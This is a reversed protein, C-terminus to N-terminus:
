AAWRKDPCAEAAAFSRVIRILAFKLTFNYRSYYGGTNSKLLKDQWLMYKMEALKWDEETDIDQVLLESKVVAATHPLIITRYKLFQGTRCFYYQGADHYIEELDQSRTKEYEPHVYKLFGNREAFGRQPPFSYSVVPVVSDVDRDMMKKMADILETSTIFPATPYICAFIDFIRGDKKYRELVEGLVDATVAYDSSTKLSRMFPIKAGYSKSIEAIEESDTSVMVEDFCGSGAAAEISYAIVPKGCFDRINKKPIRKSGGRATIICVSSNKHEEHNITFENM